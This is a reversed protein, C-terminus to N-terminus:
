DAGRNTRPDPVSQELGIDALVAGHVRLLFGGPMLIEMANGDRVAVSLPRCPLTVPATAPAEAPAVRWWGDGGRWTVVAPGGAPGLLRLLGVQDGPVPYVSATGARGITKLINLGDVARVFRGDWCLRVPGPGRGVAAHRLAEATATLWVLEGNVLACLAEMAGARAVAAVAASLDIADVTVLRPGSQGAVARLLWVRHAGIATLLLLDGALCVLQPETEAALRLSEAWLVKSPRQIPVLAVRGDSAVFCVCTLRSKEQTPEFWRAPCDLLQKAWSTARSDPPLPTAKSIRLDDAGDVLIIENDHAVAVAPRHPHSLLVARQTPEARYLLQIRGDASWHWVTGREDGALLWGDHAPVAASVPLGVRSRCLLRGDALALLELLMENGRATTRVVLLANPGVAHLSAVLAGHAPPLRVSWRKEIRAELPRPVLLAVRDHCAVALTDARARCIRPFHSSDPETADCIAATGVARLEASEDSWRYGHVTGSASAAYVSGAALVCGDVLAERPLRVRGALAAEGGDLVRYVELVSGSALLRRCVVVVSGVVAVGAGVTPEAGPPLFARQPPQPGDRSVATVYLLGSAGVTAVLAGRRDWGASLLPEPYAITVTASQDVLVVKRGTVQVCAGAATAEGGDAVPLPALGQLRWHAVDWRVAFGGFPITVVVSRSFRPPKGSLHQVPVRFEGSAIPRTSREQEAGTTTTVVRCSHALQDLAQQIPAPPQPTPGLETVIARVAEALADASGPQTLQEALARLRQNRQRRALNSRAQELADLWASRRNEALSRRVAPLRLVTALQEIRQADPRRVVQDVFQDIGHAIRRWSQRRIATQREEPLLAPMTASWLALTQELLGILEDLGGPTECRATVAELYTALRATTQLAQRLLDDHVADALTEARQRATRFAGREMASLVEKCAERQQRQQLQIRTYFAVPLAAAVAFALMWRLVTWLQARCPRTRHVKSRLTRTFLTGNPRSPRTPRSTAM